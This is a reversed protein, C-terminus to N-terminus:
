FDVTIRTGKVPGKANYVLNGSLDYVRIETSGQFSNGKADVAVTTRFIATGQLNGSADFTFSVHKLKFSGPGAQVWVGNCVNDTAPASTDIMLELGDSFFQEYAEDIVTGTDDYFKIDWLGVITRNNPDAEPAANGPVRADAIPVSFGSRLAAATYNTTQPNASCAWAKGGSLAAFCVAALTMSLNKTVTM